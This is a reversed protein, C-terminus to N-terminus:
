AFGYRENVVAHSHLDACSGIRMEAAAVSLSMGREIAHALTGDVQGMEPEFEDDSFGLRMLPELASVRAAFMTGAFFGQKLVKQESLGLRDGISFIRSANSGIYTSMPVFHRDPGVMGLVPDNEFARLMAEFAKRDLLQEYLDNRWEGGDDRHPSKKTHVKVVVSFKESSIVPLIKLFPLVDRGLNPLVRLSFLRGSGVLRQRVYAEKDPTTTAFIKCFTPLLQIRHLIEDFVDEYFAHVAIAASPRRCAELADRTAQLYAYGYRRDPELYAGEAWENWANVFVLRQDGKTFRLCTDTIANTLWLRYLDPTNHLFVTGKNGRRATNDWSPCVSRFLTYGPETYQLSRLPFIRWDYVTVQCDRTIPRVTDTILPPASNNPPFEIAADFGYTAPDVAEFSQTYALYIEGIGNERCWKRWRDGTARASPLLNPRYVLLLPRGDVRIYRPDRLYPAVEAIFAIDDEPSHSQAMLIETDLGDWRRSWNENAWCLCFPLDLSRDDLYNEVPKELLRKGGFWYFYFCFGGIGHLKALEIQRRQTSRDLLDYYGLEDPARPQYHGEFQPTAPKVNTWETFGSGWWADNEPIPHFQPLYFCIIKAPVGVPAATSQLPVYGDHLDGRGQSASAQRFRADASGDLDRLMRWDRFARSSAFLFPLKSFAASKLGAKLSPSLPLRPWIWRAAVGMQYRALVPVRGIAIAVQKLSRLPATLRWSTSGKLADIVYQHYDDEAEKEKLRRILDDAEQRATLHLREAVAYMHHAAALKEKSRQLDDAVARTESAQSESRRLVNELESERALLAQRLADGAEKAAEAELQLLRMAQQANKAADQAESAAHRAASAEQASAAEREKAEEVAARLRDKEAHSSALLQDVQALGEVLHRQEEEGLRLKAHSAHVLERGREVETQLGGIETRLTGIIREYDNVKSVLSSTPMVFHSSRQFEELELGSVQRQVRKEIEMYEQIKENSISLGSAEFVSSIFSGRTMEACESNRGFRTVSLPLDVLARLILYGLEVGERAEWEEDIVAAPESKRIIINQPICDFVEGPLRFEARREIQTGVRLVHFKDILEVFFAVFSAVEAITWGDRTVIELLKWSLPTGDIYESQILRKQQLPCDGEGEGTLSSIWNYVVDIEGSARDVFIAERCYQPLRETSYHFALPFAAEERRVPSACVLFSNAMDLGLGNEIVQPWVREPSFAAVSPFQQDRHVSQWAFAAADFARAEFGRQTVISVPFKYDPFPAMFHADTFGAEELLSALVKRGFTRPENARYRGEVGYMPGGIHDEPAGAFYKLGLQNEIALILRGQPKLLSKAQKLLTLAPNRGGSYVSAYELVGILTVVDFRMEPDFHDLKEAVVTVNNQDRTRSRTIAARRLTGELAIVNGGCEGLFRTLAGCGSGIELVDGSLLDKFPRLLNARSGSLHYRSAWDTECKRLEASLISLDTADAIAAGVRREVDEGDSYAIGNFHPRRWINSARELEFGSHILCDSVTRGM